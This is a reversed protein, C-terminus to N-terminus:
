PLRLSQVAQRQRIQHRSHMLYVKFRLTVSRTLRMPLRAEVLATHIQSRKVSDKVEDFTVGDQFTIHTDVLTDYIFTFEGDGDYLDSINTGFANVDTERFFNGFAANADGKMDVKVDYYRAGLTFSFEDNLDFTVEGFVGLQEDTRKIDNRFVTDVPFAGEQSAYDNDFAFNEVPGWGDYAHGYFNAQQV